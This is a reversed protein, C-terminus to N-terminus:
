LQDVLIKHKADYEAQTIAGADLLKKLELLREAPSRTAAPTPVPVVVAAPAAVSVARPPAASKKYGAIAYAKWDRITGDLEAGITVTVEGLMIKDAPVDWIRSAYARLASYYTYEPPPTRLSLPWRGSDATVRGVVFVDPGWAEPPSPPYKLLSHCGSCLALLALGFISALTKPHM